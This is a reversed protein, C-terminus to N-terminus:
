IKHAERDPSWLSSQNVAQSCKLESNYEHAPWYRGPGTPVHVGLIDSPCYKLFGLPHLIEELLLKQLTLASTTLTISLSAKTTHLIANELWIM